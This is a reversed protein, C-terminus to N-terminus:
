PTWATKPMCLDALGSGGMLAGVAGMFSMRLHFGGLRVVVFPLKGGCGNVIDMAMLFLPLDFTVVCTKQKYDDCRKRAFRLATYLSSPDTAAMPIFPLPLFASMDHNPENAHAVTMFGNWGHYSEQLAHEALWLFDLCGVNELQPVEEPRALVDDMVLNKLGANKAAYNPEIEMIGRDRIEAATAARKPRPVPAIAQLKSAPTVHLTDHGTLTRTNHDANDFIFQIFAGQDVSPPSSVANSGEYKMVEKYSISKGMSTMLDVVYRSGSIRHLLVGTGLHPPSLYSKPRIASIIDSAVALRQTLPAPECRVPKM